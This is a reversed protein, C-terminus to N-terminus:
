LIIYDVLKNSTPEGKKVSWSLATQFKLRFAPIVVTGETARLLHLNLLPM